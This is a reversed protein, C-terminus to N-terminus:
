SLAFSPTIGKNIVYELLEKSDFKRVIQKGCGVFENRDKSLTGVTGDKKQFEDGAKMPKYTITESNSDFQQKPIWVVQGSVTTVIYLDRGEVNVQKWSAVIETIIDM